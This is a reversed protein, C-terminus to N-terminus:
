YYYPSLESAYYAVAATLIGADDLYGVVPVFDPIADIPLIFYALAGIAVGKRYWPVKPDTMYRYLAIADQVFPVRKGVSGVKGWFNQKVMKYDKKNGKKM